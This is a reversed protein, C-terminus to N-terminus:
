DSNEGGLSAIRLSEQRRLERMEHAHANARMKQYPSMTYCGNQRVHAGHPKNMCDENVCIDLHQLLPSYWVMNFLRFMLLFDELRLTIEDTVNYRFKLYQVGEITALELESYIDSTATLMEFDTNIAEPAYAEDETIHPASELEPGLQNAKAEHLGTM